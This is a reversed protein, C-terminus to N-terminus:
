RVLGTHICSRFKTIVKGASAGTGCLLSTMTLAITDWIVPTEITQEVTQEPASWLFCWREADRAECVVLPASFKGMQHRWWTVTSSWGYSCHQSCFVFIDAKFNWQNDIITHLELSCIVDDTPPLQWNQRHRVDDCKAIFYVPLCYNKYESTYKDVPNSLAVQERSQWFQVCNM